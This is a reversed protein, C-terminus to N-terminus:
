RRHQVKKKRMRKHHWRKTREKTFRPIKNPGKAERMTENRDTFAQLGNLLIKGKRQVMRVTVQEERTLWEQNKNTRPRHIPTWQLHLNLNRRSPRQRKATHRLTTRRQKGATKITSSPVENTSAHFSWRWHSLSTMKCGHNNMTERSM